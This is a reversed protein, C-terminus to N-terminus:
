SIYFYEDFDANMLNVHVLLCYMTYKYVLVCGSEISM